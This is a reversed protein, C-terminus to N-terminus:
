WLSPKYYRKYEKILKKLEKEKNQLFINIQRNEENSDISIDEVFSVLFDLDEKLLNYFIRSNKKIDHSNLLYLNVSYISIYLSAKTHNLVKNIELM